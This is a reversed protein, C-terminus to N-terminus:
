NQNAIICNIIVIIFMIFLILNMELQPYFKLNSIQISPYSFQIKKFVNKFAQTVGTAHKGQCTGLTALEAVLEDLDFELGVTNDYQDQNKQMAINLEEVFELNHEEVIPFWKM